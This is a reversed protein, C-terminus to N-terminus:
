DNRVIMDENWLALVVDMQNNHNDPGGEIVEMVKDWLEKPEVDALSPDNRLMHVAQVAYLKNSNTNRKKAYNGAPVGSIMGEECLGVYANRPCPKKASSSGVGFVEEAFKKWITDPDFEQTERIHRTVEVAVEGYKRQM